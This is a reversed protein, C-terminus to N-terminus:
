EDGRPELMRWIADSIDKGDLLSFVLGRFEPKLTSNIYAAQDKRSYPEGGVSQMIAIKRYHITAVEHYHIFTARLDEAIQEVWDFWEDPVREILSSYTGARLQRWVEKKSLGTVIRHLEVYDAQKIKVAEYATKWVVWGEANTRSLDMLLSRMTRKDYQPNAPQHWGDAVHMFGLLALFNEKYQLVIRNDPGCIEFLPTFGAECMEQMLGFDKRERLLETGLIAQDSAFSGRTALAYEGDPRQYMVGLSGDYKNDWAYVIQDDLIRPAEKEDFNFFKPFPRALVENTDMNWILGRTLRTVDDWNRNFACTETYNAIALEPFDPHTQVRVNGVAVHAKLLLPDLIEDLQTM